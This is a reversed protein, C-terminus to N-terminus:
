PMRPMPLAARRRADKAPRPRGFSACTLTKLATGEHTQMAHPEREDDGCPSRGCTDAFIDGTPGFAQGSLTSMRYDEHLEDDVDESTPVRMMGAHRGDYRPLQLQQRVRHGWGGAAQRHVSDRTRRVQAKAQEIAAALSGQPHSQHRSPHRGSTYVARPHSSHPQYCGISDSPGYHRGRTAATVGRPRRRRNADHMGHGGVAGVAFGRRTRKARGLVRM